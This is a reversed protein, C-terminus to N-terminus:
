ATVKTKVWPSTKAEHDADGKFIFRFDLRYGIVRKDTYYIYAGITSKANLVYSGKEHRCSGNKCYRGQFYVRQRAHNPRLTFAAAPCGTPDTQRCTPSFHYLRVGNVTKYGGFIKIAWRPIVHVTKKTSTDSTWRADGTYKAFYTTKRSPRHRVSFTGKANVKGQGIRQKTGGYPVAWISVTTNTFGGMLHAKVTVADGLTVTKKSVGVTLTSTKKSLVVSATTQEASIDIDGGFTARYVVSGAGPTDDFSFSGDIATTADSLAVPAGGDVSRTISITRADVTTADSLELMGSLSVTDSPYGTSPGTLSLSSQTVTCRLNAGADHIAQVEPGSLARLYIEPEDLLGDLWSGGEVSGLTLSANTDAVVTADISTAASTGDVYLTFANGDRTVAVHYWQGTTPTWAYTIADSTASGDGVRLTLQGAGTRWLTWGATGSAHGMLAQTGTLSTFNVWADLTFDGDLTWDPVDSATVTDGSGDLSFAQNVEGTAYSADGVLTGDRGHALEATVNDGSWRALQGPATSMCVVASAVPGILVTSAVLALSVVGISAARRSRSSM